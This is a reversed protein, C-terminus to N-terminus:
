IRYALEDVRRTFVTWGIVLLGLALCTAGILVRWEPLEGTFILPRFVELMVNLPSWRFARVLNPPIISIPYIIPTLYFLATLLINYIDVVDVFFVALTSVLLAVGLTFMALLLMALPLFLLAPRFPHRMVLMIIGLPLLSLVFNVLGVGLVSVAFVTRPVYIRKLLGSGWILTNMAQVTTQTFFNWYILGSLLYIPYNKIEFRWLSSLAITLVLTNLLPNLLTWIVGLASRKYRTRIGNIVLLKLLDRYRWLEQLEFIAPSHVATSDYEMALDTTRASTTL